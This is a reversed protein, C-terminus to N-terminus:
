EIETTADRDQAGDDDKEGADENGALAEDAQPQSRYGLARPGRPGKTSGTATRVTVTASNPQKAEGM